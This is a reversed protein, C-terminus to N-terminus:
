SRSSRSGARSEAQAMFRTLSAAVIRRSRGSQPGLVAELWAKTVELHKAAVQANSLNLDAESLTLKGGGQFYLFRKGEGLRQRLKQRMYRIRLWYKSRWFFHSCDGVFHKRWNARQSKYWPFRFGNAEFFAQIVFLMTRHNANPFPHARLLTSVIEVAIEFMAKSQPEFGLFFRKIKFPEYRKYRTPPRGKQETIRAVVEKHIGEFIITLRDADSENVRPLIV